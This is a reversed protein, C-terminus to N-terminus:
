VIERAAILGSSLRPLVYDQMTWGAVDEGFIIIIGADNKYAGFHEPLYRQVTELSEKSLVVAEKYM